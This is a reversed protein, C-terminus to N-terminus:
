PRLVITARRNQRRGAETDNSAAYCCLAKAETQLSSSAIGSAILYHKVALARQEALAHNAIAGDPQVTADTYGTVRVLHGELSPLAQDLVARAAPTLQASAHEFFVTAILASATLTADRASSPDPKETIAHENTTSESARTRRTARTFPTKSPKDGGCGGEVCFLHWPYARAIEARPAHQVIHLSPSRDQISPLRPDTTMTSCAQTLVSVSLCFVIFASRM